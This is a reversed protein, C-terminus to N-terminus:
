RSRLITSIEDRLCELEADSLLTLDLKQVKEWEETSEEDQNMILDFLEDEITSM